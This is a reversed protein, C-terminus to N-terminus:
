NLHICRTRDAAEDVAFFDFHIESKELCRRSCSPIIKQHMKKLVSINNPLKTLCATTFNCCNKVVRKVRYILPRDFWNASSKKEQSRVAFPTRTQHHIKTRITSMEIDAIVRNISRRKRPNRRAPNATIGKIKMKAM